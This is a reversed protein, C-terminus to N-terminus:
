CSLRRATAAPATEGDRRLQRAFRGASHAPAQKERKQLCRVLIHRHQLVHPNICPSLFRFCLCSTQQQRPHLVRMARQFPFALPRTNRAPCPSRVLGVLVVFCPVANCACHQSPPV